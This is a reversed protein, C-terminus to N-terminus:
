CSHLCVHFSREGMNSLMRAKQLQEHAIEDCDLVPLHHSRLM